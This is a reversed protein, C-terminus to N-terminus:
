REAFLRQTLEYAEHDKLYDLVKRYRQFPDLNGPFRLALGLIGDVIRPAFFLSWGGYGMHWTHDSFTTLYGGEISWCLPSSALRQIEYFAGAPFGATPVEEVEASIYRQTTDGRLDSVRMRLAGKEVYIAERGEFRARLPEVRPEDPVLM